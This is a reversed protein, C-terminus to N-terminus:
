PVVREKSAPKWMILDLNREESGDPHKIYCTVHFLGNTGVRDIEARWTYDPYLQGFDGNTEGEELQSNQFIDAIPLGADVRAQQLRRADRLNSSVLELIAFVGICFIAMAIMVEVLTFARAAARAPSIRRSQIPHRKM